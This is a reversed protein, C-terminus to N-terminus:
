HSLREDKINAMEKLYSFYQGRLATKQQEIYDTQSKKAQAQVLADDSKQLLKVMFVGQSGVMLASTKNVQLGFSAGVLKPESGLGPVFNDAFSLQTAEQPTGNAWLNTLDSFNKGGAQALLFNAKREKVFEREMQSRVAEFEPYGASNKELLNAVVFAKYGDELPESIEGTKHKVAWQRLMDVDNVASVFQYGARLLKNEQEVKYGKDKAVLAFDGTRKTELVFASAQNYINNETRNSPEINKSIIAIKNKNESRASDVRLVHVGFQTTVKYVQGLKASFVADEFPKVMAGKGFWGLDGGNDRTGDTGFEKALEAFSAGKSLVQILSDAVKESQTLQEADGEAVPLLIHAAKREAFAGNWKIKVLKYAGNDEFPGFVTGIKGQEIEKREEASLSPLTRGKDFDQIDLNRSASNLTIFTTDRELAQWEEKTQLMEQLIANKDEATPELAFVVYQLAYSDEKQKYKAQKYNKKYYAHLDEETYAIDSDSVDAFRKYVYQIDVKQEKQAQRLMAEKESIYAGASVLSEYQENLYNDLFIQKQALWQKRVQEYQAYQNPELQEPFNGSEIDKVQQVIRERLSDPMAPTIGLFRQVESLMREGFLLEEIENATLSLGLDHISKQMIKKRLLADWADQKAQKELGETQGYYSAYLQKIRETEQNYESAHIDKGVVEGLVEDQPTNSGRRGGTFLDSIIFLLMSSGMIFILIGSRKRITELLM